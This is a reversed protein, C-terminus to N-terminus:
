SKPIHKRLLTVLQDFDVPKTMYEDMGSDIGKQIDEPLSAASVGIIPLDISIENRIIRTAELGGMEPMMVDMLIADYKHDRVKEVARKGNEAIDIFVGRKTLAEGMMLANVSNDEALLVNLPSELVNLPKRSKISSQSTKIQKDSKPLVISVNFSTGVGLKSDVVVEGDMLQALHKVITLGIGAGEHKRTYSTDSQYFSDFIRALNAEEIGCGTDEIKIHVKFLEESKDELSLEEVSVSFVVHGKETFRMANDLLSLMIQSVREPDGVVNASEPGDYDYRFDIFNLNLQPAINAIRKFITQINFHKHALELEGSIIRATDLLDSLLTLLLQGSSSITEVYKRQTLDLATEQLLSAFGLVANLPTCFEHSMNALFQSKTKQAATLDELADRLQQEAQNRLGLEVSLKETRIRVEDELKLQYRENTKLIQARDFSREVVVSLEGLDDFPKLVHEWSGKRLATLAVSAKDICSFVIIPLFPVKEKIHTIFDFVKNEEFELSCFVVDPQMAFCFGVATELNDSHFVVCGRSEFYDTLSKTSEKDQDIVLIKRSEIQKNMYVAYRM